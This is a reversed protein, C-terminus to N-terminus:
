ASEYQEMITRVFAKQQATLTLKPRKSKLLVLAEELTSVKGRRALLLAAFLGSRGHGQGCHIYTIGNSLNDFVTNLQHIDPVYGDLIPLSIYNVNEIVAEPEYFEATLDVYNEVGEPYEKSCLRRGIIITENVWDYANEDILLQVLHWLMLAYLFFPAYIVIAWVPFQGSDNKGYIRGDLGAYGLGTLFFGIGLWAVILELGSSSFGLYILSIGVLLNATILNM